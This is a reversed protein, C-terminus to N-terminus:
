PIQIWAREKFGAKDKFILSFSLEFCLEAPKKPCVTFVLVLNNRGATLKEGLQYRKGQPDDLPRMYLSEFKFYAKVKPRM